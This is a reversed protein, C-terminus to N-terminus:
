QQAERRGVSGDVWRGVSGDVWPGVSGGVQAEAIRPLSDYTSFIISPGGDVSSAADVRLFAAIEAPDTTRKAASDDGDSAVVQHHTSPHTPPHNPPSLLSPLHHSLNALPRNPISLSATSWCGGM